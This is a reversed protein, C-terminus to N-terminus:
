LHLRSLAQKGTLLKRGLNMSSVRILSPPDCWFLLLLLRLLLLLLLLFLASCIFIPFSSGKQKSTTIPPDHSFIIFILLYM